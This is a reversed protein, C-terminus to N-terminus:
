VVVGVLYLASGTTQKPMAIPLAGLAAAGPSVAMEIRFPLSALVATTGPHAWRALSVPFDVGM